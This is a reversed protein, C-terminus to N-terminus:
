EPRLGKPIVSYSQGINVILSTASVFSRRYITLDIKLNMPEAIPDHARSVGMTAEALVGVLVVRVIVGLVMILAPLWTVRVAVTVPPATDVPNTTNQSTDATGQPAVIISFSVAGLPTATNPVAVAIGVLEVCSEAVILNRKASPTCPM